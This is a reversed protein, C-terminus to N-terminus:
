CLLCPFHGYTTSTTKHCAGPSLIPQGFVEKNGTTRRQQYTSLDRTIIFQLSDFSKMIKVPKLKHSPVNDNAYANTNGVWKDILPNPLYIHSLYMADINANRDFPGFTTLMEM